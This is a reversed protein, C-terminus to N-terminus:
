EKMQYEMKIPKVIFGKKKDFKRFTRVIDEITEKHTGECIISATMSSQNNTGKNTSIRVVKYMVEKRIVYEVTTNEADNEYTRMSSFNKSNINDLKKALAKIDPKNPKNEKKSISNKFKKM